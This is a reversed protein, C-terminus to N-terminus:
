GRETLAPKRPRHLMLSGLVGLFAVAAALGFAPAFSGTADAIAGAVGPGLVQGIGMILTLLGLAAPAQRAQVYDGVSAAIIAPVSWGALGYLITSAIFAPRDTGVAFLLLAVAQLSFVVALAWKRGLRDSVSGWLIASGLSLLGVLAWLDGAEVQGLGHKLLHAAFFTAYIIYAFGFTIYVASLHWIAGTRWVAGNSSQAGDEPTHDESEIGAEAWLPRLGKDAPRDRLLIGAGVALVVAAAGLVYWSQRWGDDGGAAIVRPLVQGAVLLGIGSGAVIVGSVLGRRRPGFWRPVMGLAAVNTGASGIGTLLRLAVATEFAGALGTLVMAGGALLLGVSGVLRPGYRTALLGCLLASTLYGVFNGSAILGMQGYSLGLGQQMSPLILAYAFRGFGLAGTIALTSVALIVYGYHLGPAVRERSTTTATTARIPLTLAIRGQALTM